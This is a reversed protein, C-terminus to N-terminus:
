LGLQALTPKGPANLAEETIDAREGPAEVPLIQVGEEIEPFLQVWWIRGDWERWCETTVYQEVDDNTYWTETVITRPVTYDYLRIATDASAQPHRALWNCAAEINFWRPDRGTKNVASMVRNKIDPTITAPYSTHKDTLNSTISKREQNRRKYYLAHTHNTDHPALHPARTHTLTDHTAALAPSAFRQTPPRLHPHTPRTLSHRPPACITQTDAGRGEHEGAHKGM